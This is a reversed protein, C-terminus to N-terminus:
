FELSDLKLFQVDVHENMERTARLHFDEFQHFKVKWPDVM